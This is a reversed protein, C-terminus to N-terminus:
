SFTVGTVPSLQSFVKWVLSFSVACRKTLMELLGFIVVVFSCGLPENCTLCLPTIIEL